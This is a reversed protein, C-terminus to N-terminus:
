HEQRLALYELAGLALCGNAIFAVVWHGESEFQSWRLAAVLWIAAGGAVNAFALTRVFSETTRRYFAAGLLVVGVGAFVVAAVAIIGSTVNLWFAPSGVVGSLLLAVVVEFAADAVLIRRLLPSLGAPTQNV